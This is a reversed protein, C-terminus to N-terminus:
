SVQAIGIEGERLWALQNKLTQHAREVVAQGTSNHLISVTHRVGGYNYFGNSVQSQYNPGNDTKITVLVGLVTFVLHLHRVSQRATMHTMLLVVMARSCTDVAVHIHLQRGFPKFETVDVQWLQKPQLGRPNVGIVVAPTVGGLPRAHQACQLSLTLRLLLSILNGFGLRSRGPLLISAFGM